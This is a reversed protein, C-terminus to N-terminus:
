GAKAAVRKHRKQIIAVCVAHVAFAAGVVIFYYVQNLTVAFIMVAAALTWLFAEGLFGDPWNPVGGAAPIRPHLAPRLRPVASCYARYSEGQTVSIQEEERLILRYSFVFVGLVLMFFGIRSAMLGFGLALLINGLYLPNRVYRYPGDAVLRSTHLQRDVMVQANLYATAWTRLLAALATLLAAFGFILRYNTTTTTTGHLKAMWEVLAAGSTQRDLNYSCFALAFILGFIWFRQRFEFNTAPGM